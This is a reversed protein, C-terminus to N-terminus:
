KCSSLPEFVVCFLDFGFFASIVKTMFFSLFIMILGFIAFLVRDRGAFFKEKAGRSQIIDMGGKAISWLALLIALTVIFVISVSIISQGTTSLGGTPVGAPLSSDIPKDMGPLTLSLYKM